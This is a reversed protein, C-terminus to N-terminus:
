EPVHLTINKEIVIDDLTVYNGNGRVKVQFHSGMRIRVKSKCSHVFNEMRVVHVICDDECLLVEPKRGFGATELGYKDIKVTVLHAEAFTSTVGISLLLALFFKMMAGEAYDEVTPPCCNLGSFIWENYPKGSNGVVKIYKGTFPRRLLPSM